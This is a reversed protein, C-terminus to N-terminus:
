DISEVVGNKLLAFHQYFSAYFQWPTLSPPFGFYGVLMLMQETM